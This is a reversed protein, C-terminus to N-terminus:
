EKGAFAQAWAASKLRVLIALGAGCGLMFAGCLLWNGGARYLGGFAEIVTATAAVAWAGLITRCMMMLTMAGDMEAEKVGDFTAAQVLLVPQSMSFGFAFMVTAAVVPQQTVADSLVTAGICASAVCLGAIAQTKSGVQKQIFTVAQSGALMGLSEAFMVMGAAQVGSGSEVLALPVLFLFGSIVAFCLSMLMVGQRYWLVGALHFPLITVGRGQSKRISLLIAGTALVVCVIPVAGTGSHYSEVLLPPCVALCGVGAAFAFLPFLPYQSVPGDEPADEIVLRTAGLFMLFSLVALVGFIWRWHWHEAVIGGVVPGMLPALTLPVTSLRAIELRREGTAGRYMMSLGVPVLVGSSAGQIARAFVLVLPSPASAALVFGVSLGVLCYAFLARPGYRQSLWATLPLVTASAVLFAWEVSGLRAAEVGFDQAMVPLIPIVVTADFGNIAMAGLFIGLQWKGRDCRSM